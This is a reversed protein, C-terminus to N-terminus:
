STKIKKRGFVALGLFSSGLLLMISADPVSTGIFESTFDGMDTSQVHVAFLFEGKNGGSSGENIDGISLAGGSSSVMITRSSYRTGGDGFDVRVDFDGDGDPRTESDDNYNVIYSLSDGTVSIENFSRDPEINFYFWHLDANTGLVETNLAITMQLDGSIESVDVTGFNGSLAPDWNSFATDLNFTTATALPIFFMFSLLISFISFKIRAM